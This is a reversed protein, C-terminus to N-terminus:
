LAQATTDQERRRVRRHDISFVGLGEVQVGTVAETIAGRLTDHGFAAVRRDARAENSGRGEDYSQGRTM